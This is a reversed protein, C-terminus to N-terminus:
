KSAEFLKRWMSLYGPITMPPKAKAKIEKGAAAGDWLLDIITMAMVKAPVVYVMEKDAVAFDRAHARGAAGSAEPHIAPMINSIDGMDTSGAMHQGASVNKAGLLAVANDRFLGSLPPDNILPLYGPIETIEVGAGVAMAGARLARNVKGNADLIAEMTRGRIYTEMRVDAPVINVLDGGKTIIPHVRISDADRFTERQAHVGMLGLMAANLANVGTHPSGGAHAEKGIYKVAKGIFGNSGGGYRVQRGPLSSSTHVMMAMDVDDLLGLRIFEQKGGLFEIKGQERLKMRYEIEVYEEAPVALLAVSGDLSAMAGGESLGYALGLLNAIQANHGCAHVAGTVTDAAPHDHCLVADLEGMVAVRVNDSRGAMEARLGTVALNDRHPLGLATFREKVLAATKFEKFGLEPQRFITEGIEIIDAARKDIAACVQAKLEAKNM